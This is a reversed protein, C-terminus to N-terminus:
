EKVDMKYTASQASFARTLGKDIKNAIKWAKEANKRGQESNDLTMKMLDTQERVLETLWRTIRATTTSRQADQWALLEDEEDNTPWTLAKM